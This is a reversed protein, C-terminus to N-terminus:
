FTKGRRSHGVSSKIGEGPYKSHRGTIVGPVRHGNRATALGNVVENLATGGCAIVLERGDRTAKQAIETAHGPGTTEALEAQIGNESLFQRAEDILRRRANGGSGANPNHILLANRFRMDM